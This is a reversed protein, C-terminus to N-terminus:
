GEGIRNDYFVKTLARVVEVQRDCDHILDGATEFVIEQSNHEEGKRAFKVDLRDEGGDQECGTSLHAEPGFEPFAHPGSASQVAGPSELKRSYVNLRFGMPNRGAPEYRCFWGTERYPGSGAFSFSTGGDAGLIPKLLEAAPCGGKGAAATTSARVDQAGGAAPDSETGCGSLTL